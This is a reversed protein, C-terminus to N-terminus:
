SPFNAVARSPRSRFPFSRFRSQLVLHAACCHPNRRSRPGHFSAAARRPRFTVPGDVPLMRARRLLKRVAAGFSQPVSGSFCERRTRPPPVGAYPSGGSQTSLSGCVDGHGVAHSGDRLRKGDPYVDGCALGAVSIQRDLPDYNRSVFLPTSQPGNRGWMRHRTPSPFPAAASSLM